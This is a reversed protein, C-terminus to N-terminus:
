IAKEIFNIIIIALIVLSLIPWITMAWVVLAVLTSVLLLVSSIIGVHAWDTFLRHEGGYAVIGISFALCLFFSLLVM